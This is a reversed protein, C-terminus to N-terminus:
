DSLCLAKQKLMKRKIIEQIEDETTVPFGHLDVGGFSLIKYSKTYPPISIKFIHKEGPHITKFHYTMIDGPACKTKSIMYNIYGSSISKDGTNQITGGLFYINNAATAMHFRMTLKADAHVLCSQFVIFFTTLTKLM